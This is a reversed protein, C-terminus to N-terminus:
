TQDNPDDVNSREADVREILLRLEYVYESLIGTTFAWVCVLWLLIKLPLALTTVGLHVVPDKSMVAAGLQIVAYLYLFFLTVAGPNLLKDAFRGVVFCLGIGSLTAVVLDVADLVKLFTKAYAYWAVAVLFLFVGVAATQYTSADFRAVDHGKSEITIEGIELYLWFIFLSTLGSLTILFPRDVLSSTSLLALGTIAYYAAWLCFVINLLHTIRRCAKRAIAAHEDNGPFRAPLNAGPIMLALLLSVGAQVFALNARQLKKEDLLAALGDNWWKVPWTTPELYSIAIASAVLGGIGIAKRMKSVASFAWAPFTLNQAPDVPVNTLTKATKELVNMPTVAQKLIVESERPDTTEM